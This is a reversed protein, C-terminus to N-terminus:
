SKKKQEADKKRKQDVAKMGKLCLASIVGLLLTGLGVEKRNDKM